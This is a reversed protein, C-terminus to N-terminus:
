VLLLQLPPVLNPADEKPEAVPFAMSTESQLHRALALVLLRYPQEVHAFADTRREDQVVIARAVFLIELVRGFVNRKVCHKVKELL